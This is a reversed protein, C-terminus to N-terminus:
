EEWRSTSAVNRAKRAGASCATTHSRGASSASAPSPAAARARRRPARATAPRSASRGRRRELDLQRDRAGVVREVGRGRQGGAARDAGVDRGGRGRQAVERARPPAELVDARRRLAREHDVVVRVVRGLHARRELRRPRERRPPQDRDELRVQEGAGAVLRALEARREREGVQRHHRLDVRRALAGLVMGPTVPRSTASAAASAAPPRRTAHSGSKSEASRKRRASSRSPSRSSVSPAPSMSASPLLSTPGPRVGPPHLPDERSNEHSGTRHGSAPQPHAVGREHGDTVDIHGADVGGLTRLDAAREAVGREVHGGQVHALVRQARGDRLVRRDLAEVDVGVERVLERDDHVLARGTAAIWLPPAM